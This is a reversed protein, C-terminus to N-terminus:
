AYRKIDFGFISVFQVSSSNNEIMSVFSNIAAVLVLEDLREGQIGIDAM